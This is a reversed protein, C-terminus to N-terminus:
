KLFFGLFFIILFIVITLLSLPNPVHGTPSINGSQVQFGHLGHGGDSIPRRPAPAPSHIAVFEIIDYPRAGRDALFQDRRATTSVHEIGGIEQGDIWTCKCKPCSDIEYDAGPLQVIEANMVGHGHVCEITAERECRNCTSSFGLPSQCYRCQSPATARRHLDAEIPVGAMADLRGSELLVGGCLTCANFDVGNKTRPVLQGKCTPCQM